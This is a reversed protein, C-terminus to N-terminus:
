ATDGGIEVHRRWQHTVFQGLVFIRDRLHIQFLEAEQRRAASRVISGLDPDDARKHATLRSIFSEWVVRSTETEGNASAFISSMRRRQLRKAIANDSAIGM